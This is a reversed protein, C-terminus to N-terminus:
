IKIVVITLKGSKLATKGYDDPWMEPPSITCQAVFLTQILSTFIQSAVGISQAACQTTDGSCGMNFVTQYLLKLHNLGQM